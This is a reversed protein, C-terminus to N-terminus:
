AGYWADILPGVEYSTVEHRASLWRKIHARNAETTSGRGMFCVFGDWDYHGGGGFGLGQSKIAEDLFSDIASDIEQESLKPDLIFRVDFGLEQFERKRLKKRLRKKMNM